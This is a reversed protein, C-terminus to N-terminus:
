WRGFPIRLRLVIDRGPDDVFLRYRSLYDRYRRNFLNRVALTADVPAGLLDLQSAGLELNVLTYGDTPLNYITATPVRDQERVLVTSAEFHYLAGGGSGPTMRASLTVRDAPMDHLPTGDTRDTGRVLNGAAQLSLWGAPRWTTTLELGRLSADTQAYRYGPFAGRITLVPATPRLFIFGGVRSYYGTLEVDVANGLHRLTLEGSLKRETALATDGLEYQATGHHVGQAFRENISPARWARAVRAALSWHHGILYSAGLSGAVGDWARREDPSVIGADGYELTHQWIRDYRAGATLTWRDLALEEQAYVAGSWLRYEPILFAKGASYNWQAMGSVGITGTLRGLPRHLLRADLTNTTLRLDFAPIDRNRLPGHNDYERRQNYQFGYNLDLTGATVDVKTRWAVLNHTVRQYPGAIDYSFDTDAPTRQMARQLDDFNGVHAGQYVGLQTGFRALLLESSGWGRRIGLTASGNLENFGTNRLNYAPAHADGAKRGTLRLRFGAQGLLPLRLGGGEVRLSAAGQRNNSFANLSVDGRLPGSDPVAVREVRVVGGLADSGYLVTGPGRVITIEDAEFSDIEPAHETGWQQGEQRVGNNLVVVRQSHLGRIVPKAVGPGYQIVTVGPLQKITEGLTQGRVAALEGAAITTTSQLARLETEISQQATVSIPPLEVALAALAIDLHGDGFTLDVSRSAPGYGIM